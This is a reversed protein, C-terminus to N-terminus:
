RNNNALELLSYQAWERSQKPYMDGALLFKLLAKDYQNQFFLVEGLYFKTRATVRITRRIKLFDELEKQCKKWNKQSFSGKLIRQLEMTEGGKPTRKDDPFIYSKKRLSAPLFERYYENGATLSNILNETQSSFYLKKKKYEGSPNLYPLPIPRSLNSERKKIKSPNLEIVEVPLAITNKGEVFSVNGSALQHEEAIAYYFPIGSVPYDLYAMGNDKLSAIPVAKSLSIFSSFPKTSRYIVLNSNQRSAKWSIVVAKERAIASFSIFYFKSTDFNDLKQPPAIIQIQKNKEPKPVVAPILDEGPSSYNEAFCFSFLGMFILIFLKKM